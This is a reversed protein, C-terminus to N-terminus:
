YKVVMCIISDGYTFSITHDLKFRSNTGPQYTAIHKPNKNIKNNFSVGETMVNKHLVNQVDLKSLVAIEWELTNIQFNSMITIYSGAANIISFTIQIKNGYTEEFNDILNM